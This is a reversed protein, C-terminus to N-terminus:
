NIKHTRVLGGWRTKAADQAIEKRRQPSLAKARAPGGKAGGVKGLASMIVSVNKAEDFELLNSAMGDLWSALELCQTYHEDLVAEKGAMEMWECHERLYAAIHKFKEKM